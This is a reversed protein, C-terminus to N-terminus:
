ATCVCEPIPVSRAVNIREAPCCVWMESDFRRRAWMALVSTRDEHVCQCSRDVLASMM